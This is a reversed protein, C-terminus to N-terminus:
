FVFNSYATFPNKGYAAFSTRFCRYEFDNAAVFFESMKFNYLPHYMQLNVCREYVVLWM